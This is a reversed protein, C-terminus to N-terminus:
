DAGLRRAHRGGPFTLVTINGGPTQLMSVNGRVKLVRIAAANATDPKLRVEPRDVQLHVSRGCLTVLAAAILVRRM